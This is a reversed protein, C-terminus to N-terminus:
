LKNCLIFLFGWGINHPHYFRSSHSPRPLYLTHTLPSAYVLTLHTFRFSLSWKSSV